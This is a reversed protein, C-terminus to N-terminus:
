VDPRESHKEVNLPTFPPHNLLKHRRMEAVNRSSGARLAEWRKEWHLGFQNIKGKHLTGMKHSERSQLLDYPSLTLHHLDPRSSDPPVTLAAIGTLSFWPRILHWHYWRSPHEGIPHHAAVQHLPPLIRAPRVHAQRHRLLWDRGLRGFQGRREFRGVPVGSYFM